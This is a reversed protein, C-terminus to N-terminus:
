NESKVRPIQRRLRPDDVELKLEDYMIEGHSLRLDVTNPGIRLLAAPFRLIRNEHYSSGLIASRYGASSNGGTYTGISRENVLVELKPSSTQGAVSITLVGEGEYQRDANFVVKWDGPKAQSYYWDRSAISTGITYTLDAPVSRDLGYQRPQDSLKFGTTRLDAIGIEWLRASYCTPTFLLTGLDVPANAKVVVKDKRFEDTVGPVSGYLTYSGPRVHPLRFNGDADARASFIYDLVQIQWDTQPGTLVMLANAAPQNGDYLKLTGEISGRELPFDPHQMWSYPWQAQERDAQAKADAWMERPSKGSNLYVMWPGCLKTWGDPISPSALERPEFHGSALFRHIIPGAHVTLEQKTPAQLFEASPTIIFAGYSRGESGCLGYVWDNELYDCYNYKTYISGDVLRFTADQVREAGELNPIPGQESDNVLQYNFLRNNLYFSWRVQGIREPRDEPGRRMLVAVYFGQEGRKLIYYQTFQVGGIPAAISIEALDPSNREVKFIGNHVDWGDHGASNVVAFYAGRGALNTSDGLQLTRITADAKGVIFSIKGNSIKVQSGLDDLRVPDNAAAAGGQELLITFMFVAVWARKMISFRLELANVVSLNSM